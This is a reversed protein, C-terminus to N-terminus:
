SRPTRSGRRKRGRHGQPRERHAPAGRPRERARSTTRALARLPGREKHVSDLYYPFQVSAAAPALQAVTDMRDTGAPNGSVFVPEGDKPGEASWKLYDKPALPKDDAYVRFIAM